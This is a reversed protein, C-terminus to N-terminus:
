PLAIAAIAGSGYSKTMSSFAERLLDISNQNVM